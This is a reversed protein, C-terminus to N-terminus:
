DFELVCGNMYEYHKNLQEKVREADKEEQITIANDWGNRRPNGCGSCSCPKPTNVAKTARLGTYEDSGWWKVIGYNARKRKLRARHSRRIARKVNVGRFLSKRTGILSTIPEV